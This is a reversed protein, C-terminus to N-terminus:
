VLKTQAKPDSFKILDLEMFNQMLYASIKLNPDNNVFNPTNIGPFICFFGEFIKKPHWKLYTLGGLDQRFPGTKKSCYFQYQFRKPLDLFHTWGSIREKLSKLHIFFFVFLKSLTDKKASRGLEPM